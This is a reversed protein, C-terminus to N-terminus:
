GEASGEAESQGVDCGDDRGLVRGDVFGDNDVMGLPWGESFGEAESQGVDCGLLDGLKDPRGDDTGDDMGLRDTISLPDTQTSLSPSLKSSTPSGGRAETLMVTNSKSVFSVTPETREFLVPEHNKFKGGPM